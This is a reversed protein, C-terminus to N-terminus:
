STIRKTEIIIYNSCTNFGGCACELPRQPGNQHLHLTRTSRDMTQSFNLFISIRTPSCPWFDGAVTEKLVTFLRRQGYRLNMQGLARRTLPGPGDVTRGDDDPGWSASYIDTLLPRAYKSITESWLTTVTANCLCKCKILKFNFPTLSFIEQSGTCITMKFTVSVIKQATKFTTEILKATTKSKLTNGNGGLLGFNIPSTGMFLCFAAAPCM